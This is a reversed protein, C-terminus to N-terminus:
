ILNNLVYEIAAKYAETPSNFPETYKNIQTNMLVRFKINRDRHIVRANFSVFEKRVQPNNNTTVEIWIDHKEYLWRIVEAITPALCHTIHYEEVPSFSLIRPPQAEFDEIGLRPINLQHKLTEVWFDNCKEDFGKEKLLKALPFSVPTNM